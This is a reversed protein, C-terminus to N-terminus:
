EDGEAPFGAKEMWEKLYLVPFTQALYEEMIIHHYGALFLDVDDLLEGKLWNSVPKLVRNYGKLEDRYYEADMYNWWVESYVGRYGSVWEVDAAYGWINMDSTDGHERRKNIFEEENRGYPVIIGNIVIPERDEPHYRNCISVIDGRKFPVPFCFWLEDFFGDIEYWRKNDNESYNPSVELIRGSLDIMIDGHFADGEDPLTRKIEILNSDEADVNDQIHKECNEYTSFFGEFDSSSCRYKFSSYYYKYKYFWGGTNDKFEKIFANEMEMYDHLLRHISEVNSYIVEKNKFHGNWRGCAKIEMDPMNDIIWQWTEHKQELTKSNCQSVLWAAEVSNYEYGIQKHYERIDKSNIFSSIDM